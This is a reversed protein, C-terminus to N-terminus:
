KVQKWDEVEMTKSWFSVEETIKGNINLYKGDHKKIQNLLQKSGTLTYTIKNRSLPNEEFIVNGDETVTVLGTIFGDNNASIKNKSTCCSVGMFSLLTLLLIFAKKM